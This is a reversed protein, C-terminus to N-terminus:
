APLREAPSDRLGDRRNEPMAMEQVLLEAVIGATLNAVLRASTLQATGSLPDLLQGALLGPSSFLLLQFSINVQDQFSALVLGRLAVSGLLLAAMAQNTRMHALAELMRTDALMATEARLLPMDLTTHVREKPQPLPAQKSHVMHQYDALRSFEM